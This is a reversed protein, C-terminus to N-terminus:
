PKRLGLRELRPLVEARFYPFEDIENVLSLAVGDIGAASVRSLMGAVDDPAGCLPLSGKGSAITASVRALEAPPLGVQGKMELMREIATRDAHEVTVYDRYEEAERRTARCVLMASTYVAVERGMHRAEAKTARVFRTAEDLGDDTALSQRISTFWANCNRLAFTRGDDSVGANMVLPHTGGYPKPKERVGKVNYFEGAFDFDDREWIMKVLDLWEQGQRYRAAYDVPKVGFMEFEDENWGCVVNLGFRGHGAHDATVMQKAAILPSFLPVHVTGFITLHRTVALMATAWTLTEFTSGHYDADGGYGKWRAIPLFFDMGADDLLLALRVNDDWTATWREPVTTLYRGSSCNSGFFGLKLANENYMAYRGSAARAQLMSSAKLPREAVGTSVAHKTFIV